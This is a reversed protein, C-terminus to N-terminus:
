ILEKFKKFYIKQYFNVHESYSKEWSFNRANKIGEKIIETRNQKIKSRAKHTCEINLKELLLEKKDVLEVISSSKQAIFPCGAKQAEVIPIGFGEYGSPYFLFEAYNYLINLDANPVYNIIHYRGNIKSNLMELEKTDLSGGGIIVINLDRTDAIFNVAFEFNKYLDRKGIFLCFPSKINKLIDVNMNKDVIPFFDESAGNHIVVIDKKEFEPYFKLLDKKTNESVCIVGDSQAISRYKLKAIMKAKYGKDFLEPMFDHVTTIQCCNKENTRLRYYSSHFLHKDCVSSNSARLIRNIFREKEEIKHFNNVDFDPRMKNNRVSNMEIFYKEFDKNEAFRSLLESWYVSIGGAKQLSFIINDFVLKM